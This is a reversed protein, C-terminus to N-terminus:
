GALDLEDEEHEIIGEVLRFRRRLEALEKKAAIAAQRKRIKDKKYEKHEIVAKLGQAMQYKWTHAGPADKRRRLKERAIVNEIFNLHAQTADNMM